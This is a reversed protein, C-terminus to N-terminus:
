FFDQGTHYRSIAYDVTPFVANASLLVFHLVYLSIYSSLPTLCLLVPGMAHHQWRVSKM